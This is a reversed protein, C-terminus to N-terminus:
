RFAIVLLPFFLHQSYVFTDAVIVQRCSVPSLPPQWSLFIYIGEQRKRVEQAWTKLCTKIFKKVLSKSHYDDSDADICSLSYYTYRRSSGHESFFPTCPAIRMSGSPQDKWESSFSSSGSKSSITKVSALSLFGNQCLYNFKLSFFPCPNRPLDIREPLIIIRGLWVTM